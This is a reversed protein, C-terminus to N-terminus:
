PSPQADQFFLSVVGDIEADSVELRNPHPSMLRGIAAWYLLRARMGVASTPVGLATLLDAAFAIRRGDVEAVLDAVHPDVTAWSRVARELRATSRLAQRMLRRLQDASSGERRVDEILADTTRESWHDILAKTFDEVSGFHWYFSGRTVGLRRTMRNAKLADYGDEALTTLAFDLWDTRSLRTVPGPKARV